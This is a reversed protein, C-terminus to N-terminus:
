LKMQKFKTEIEEMQELTVLGKDYMQIMNQIKLQENIEHLLENRTHIAQIIDMPFQLNCISM